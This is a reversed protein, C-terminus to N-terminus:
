KRDLEEAARRMEKLQELHKRERVVVRRLGGLVLLLVASIFLWAWM